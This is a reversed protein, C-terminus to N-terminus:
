FAYFYSEHIKRVEEHRLKLNNQCKKYVHPTNSTDYQTIVTITETQPEIRVDYNDCYRYKRIYKECFTQM